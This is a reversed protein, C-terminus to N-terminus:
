DLTAGSLRVRDAQLLRDKSLYSELEVPTSGIPIYGFPEIYEGNFDSDFLVDRISAALLHRIAGPTGAPAVIAFIFSAQPSVIGSEGITPIDAYARVRSPADVVLAKLRGERLYPGVAAL